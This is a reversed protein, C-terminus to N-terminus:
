VNVLKIAMTVEVAIPKLQFIKYSKEGQKLLWKELMDKDDFVQMELRSETHSGYGHGPFDKSRQDGEHYINTEEFAVFAVNKPLDSFVKPYSLSM